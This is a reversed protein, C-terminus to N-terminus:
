SGWRTIRILRSAWRVVQVVITKWTFKWEFKIGSSSSFVRALHTMNIKM